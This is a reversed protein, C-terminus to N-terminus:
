VHHARVLAPPWAPDGREEVVRLAAAARSGHRDSWCGGAAERKAAVVAPLEPM